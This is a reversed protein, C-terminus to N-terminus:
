RMAFVFHAPACRFIYCWFNSHLEALTSCIASHVNPHKPHADAVHSFVNRGNARLARFFFACLVLIFILRDVFLVFVSFFFISIFFCLVKSVSSKDVSAADSGGVFMRYSLLWLHMSCLYVNIENVVQCLLLHFLGSIMHFGLNFVVGYCFDNKIRARERERQVNELKSTNNNTQNERSKQQQKTLSDSTTQGLRHSATWICFSSDIATIKKKKPSHIPNHRERQPHKQTDTKALM